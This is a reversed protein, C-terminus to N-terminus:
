YKPLKWLPNREEIYKAASKKGAIGGLRPFSLNRLLPYALHENFIPKLM